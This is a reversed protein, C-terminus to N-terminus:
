VIHHLIYFYRKIIWVNTIIRPIRRFFNLTFGSNNTLIDKQFRVNKLHVFNTCKAYNSQMIACCVIQMGINPYSTREPFYMNWKLHSNKKLIKRNSVPVHLLSNNFLNWNQFDKCIKVEIRFIGFPTALYLM